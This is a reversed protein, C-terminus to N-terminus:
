EEKVSEDNIVEMKIILARDTDDCGVSTQLATVAFDVATSATGFDFFANHYGVELIVRYMM